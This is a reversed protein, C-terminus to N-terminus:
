FWVDVTSLHGGKGAGTDVFVADGGNKTTATVVQDGVVEHGVFVTHGAPVDDVWDHLRVPFGKPHFKFGFSFRTSFEFRRWFTDHFGDTQGYISRSYVMGRGPVKAKRDAFLVDSLLMVPHFAGHVFTFKGMTAHVPVSPLMKHFRDGIAKGDPHLALQAVTTQLGHAVKVNNGNLFRWLKDDHNGVVMGGAGSDVLDMMLEMVAPSNPGRDTLDGLSVVFLNNARASMVAANFATFDGHVDGVVKFGKFNAKVRNLDFM